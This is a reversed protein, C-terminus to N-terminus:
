KEWGKVTNAVEKTINRWEALLAHPFGLSIAINEDIRFKAFCAGNGFEYDVYNKSVGRCDFFLWEFDSDRAIYFIKKSANAEDQAEVLGYVEKGSPRKKADPNYLYDYDSKMYHDYKDHNAHLTISLQAEIIEDFAEIPKVIKKDLLIGRLYITSSADLTNSKVMEVTELTVPRIFQSSISFRTLERDTQPYTLIFDVPVDLQTNYEKLLEEKSQKPESNSQQSCALQTFCTLMYIIAFISNRLM